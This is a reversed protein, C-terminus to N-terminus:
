EKRLWTQDIWACPKTSATNKRKKFFELIEEATMKSLEESLIDRQERMFQVADFSKKITKM